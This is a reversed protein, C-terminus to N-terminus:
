KGQLFGSLLQLRGWRFLHQPSRTFISKAFIFFINIKELLKSAQISSGIVTFRFVGPVHRSPNAELSAM